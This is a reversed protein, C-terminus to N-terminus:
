GSWPLGMRYLTLSDAVAYTLSEIDKCQQFEKLFADWFDRMKQERYEKSSGEAFRVFWAANYITRYSHMREQILVASARCSRGSVSVKKHQATHADAFQMLVGSILQELESANLISGSGHSAKRKLRTKVQKTTIDM